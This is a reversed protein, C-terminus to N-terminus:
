IILRNDGDVGNAFGVIHFHLPLLLVLSRPRNLCINSTLVSMMIKMMGRGLNFHIRWKAIHLVSKMCLKECVKAIPAGRLLAQYLNKSYCKLLFLNEINDDCIETYRGFRRTKIGLQSNIAVPM